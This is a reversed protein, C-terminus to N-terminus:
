NKYKEYNSFWRVDEKWDEMQKKHLRVKNNEPESIRYHYGALGTSLAAFFNMLLVTFDQLTMKQIKLGGM